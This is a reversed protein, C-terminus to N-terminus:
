EISGKFKLLKVYTKIADLMIDENFDFRLSHLGNVFGKEENRAGQMFFLGPVERQYYSFDESIMLPETKTIKEKGVAEVFENFLNEDNNVAIYGDTDYIEPNFCRMTGELKVNEAIINRISGAAMKGFTLVAGEMPNLNRSVISQVSTVFNAGIVIGDITNQPIAGHGSKGIIEVDIEGNQAMLYGAKCGIYGEPFDPHIHLGYVEDVNYKKFIGAKMLPEAGGTDEEAPQFVFVINDNLNEKNDM